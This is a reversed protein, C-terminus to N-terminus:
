FGGGGGGFGGRKLNFVTGSGLLTIGFVREMPSIIKAMLNDTAVLEDQAVYVRDGPLLQYNTTPDGRQTLGVWDVPMIQDCGEANHGPRAIWITTSSVSTLGSIQSIADLVTENGTVPFKSVGDGLQAGQTVVYYNKSNYAYVDVSVEPEELSQSLHQEISRKAEALTQGVVLVSGYTGLTVTGDQTVLHQGSIQQKGAIDGLALSLIPDKLTQKLQTEIATRATDVTMGSVKVRGYPYGLNIVGGPEVVFTGSIPADPLTNTVQLVVSDFTRLRYPPKPVANIADIQLVDPPEIRYTPLIVKTLERPAMPHVALDVAPRNPAAAHPLIGCGSMALFGVLAATLKM